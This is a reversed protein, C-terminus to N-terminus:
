FEKERSVLKQFFIKSTVPPVLKQYKVLRRRKGSHFVGFAFIFRSRKEKDKNAFYSLSNWKSVIIKITWLKSALLIYSKQGYNLFTRLLNSHKIRALREV